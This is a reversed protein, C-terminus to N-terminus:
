GPCTAEANSSTPSTSSLIWHALRNADIEREDSIPIDATTEHRQELLLLLSQNSLVVQMPSDDANGRSAVPRVVIRRPM